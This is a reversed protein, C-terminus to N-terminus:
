LEPHLARERALEGRFGGVRVFKGFGNLLLGAGLGLMAWFGISGFEVFLAVGALVLGAMMQESPLLAGIFHRM